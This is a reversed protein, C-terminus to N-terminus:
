QSAVEMLLWSLEWTGIVVDTTTGTRLPKGDILVPIDLTEGAAKELAADLEAREPSGAVYGKVPENEPTPVRFTGDSM